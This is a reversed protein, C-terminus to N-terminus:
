AVNQDARGMQDGIKCFLVILVGCQLSALALLHAVRHVGLVLVGLVLNWSSSSFYIDMGIRWQAEM